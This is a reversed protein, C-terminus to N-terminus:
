TKEPKRGYCIYSFPTLKRSRIDCFGAERVMTKMEEEAYIAHDGTNWHKFSWNMARIMWGPGTLDNILVIGGEKLIRYMESLSREPHPYHHISMHCSVSDFASDPLPMKEADGEVIEADPLRNRSKKVMEAAYDLGSLRVSSIEKHLYALFAGNGCGIDIHNRSGYERLLKVSASYDHSWYGNKNM